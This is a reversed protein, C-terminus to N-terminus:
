HRKNDSVAHIDVTLVTHIDVTLICILISIHSILETNILHHSITLIRMYTTVTILLVNQVKINSLTIVLIHCQWSTEIM